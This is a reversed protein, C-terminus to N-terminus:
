TIGGGANGWGGALSNATGVIKKDFFGTCWVQCPVFTGGLIGVFFRLVILGRPNTVLGAMATPISGCLLLGVFVLRPGFRDCLPGAIFRVLLSSNFWYDTKNHDNPRHVYTALLAVINSNAVQEQTMHLDQRITVTLQIGHYAKNQILSPSLGVLPPFAYWSLFAVTFGLWSFTFVRGYKDFPNLVPISLAKCNSPNIEPSKFLLSVIRM